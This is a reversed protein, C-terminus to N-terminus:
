RKFNWERTNYKNTYLEDAIIKEFSSLKSDVLKEELIESMGEWLSTKVDHFSIVKEMEDSLSSIKFKAQEIIKAKLRDKIKLCYFIDEISV